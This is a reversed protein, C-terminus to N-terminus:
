PLKEIENEKGPDPNAQKSLIKPPQKDLSPEVAVAPKKNVVVFL